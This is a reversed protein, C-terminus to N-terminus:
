NRRLSFWGILKKSLEKKGWVYAPIGCLLVAHVLILPILAMIQAYFSAPVSFVYVTALIGGLSIVALLLGVAFKPNLERGHLVLVDLALSVGLICSFWLLPAGVANGELFYLVALNTFGLIVVIKAIGGTPLKSKRIPKNTHNTTIPMSSLNPEKPLWGRILKFLYRKLSM